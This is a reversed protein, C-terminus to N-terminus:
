GKSTMGLSGRARDLAENQERQYQYDLGSISGCIVGVGEANSFWTLLEDSTPQRTQFEKWSALGPRKSGDTAVPVVSIGENAFELATKLIRNM